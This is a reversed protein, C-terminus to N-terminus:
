LTLSITFYVHAFEYLSVVFPCGNGCTKISSFKTSIRGNSLGNIQYKCLLHCRMFTGSTVSKITPEFSLLRCVEAELCIYSGGGKNTYITDPTPNFYHRDM